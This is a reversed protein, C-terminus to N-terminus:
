KEAGTRQPYCDASILAVPYGIKAAGDFDVILGRKAATCGDYSDFQATLQMPHGAGLWAAVLLWTM